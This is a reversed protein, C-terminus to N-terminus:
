CAIKRVWLLARGLLLTYIFSIPQNLRRWSFFVPWHLLVQWSALTISKKKCLLHTKSNRQEAEGEKGNGQQQSPAVHEISGIRMHKNLYPSTSKIVGWLTSQKRQFFKINQCGHRSDATVSGTHIRRQYHSKWQGLFGKM